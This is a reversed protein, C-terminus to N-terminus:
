IPLFGVVFFADELAFVQHTHGPPITITEGAITKKGSISEYIAGSFLSLLEPCDHQHIGLRSGERMFVYFILSPGDNLVPISIVNPALFLVTGEPVSSLDEFSVMQSDKFLSVIQANLAEIEEKIQQLKKDPM